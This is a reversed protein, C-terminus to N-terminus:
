SQKSREEPGLIQCGRQKSIKRKVFGEKGQNRM